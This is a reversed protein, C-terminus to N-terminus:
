PGLVALSPGETIKDRIQKLVGLARKDEVEQRKGGGGGVAMRRLDIQRFQEREGRQLAKSAVNEAEKQQAEFKRMFDANIAAANDAQSQLLADKEAAAKEEAALQNRLPQAMTELMKREANWRAISAQLTSLYGKEELQQIEAIKTKYDMQTLEEKSMISKKIEAAREAFKIKQDEIDKFQQAWKEEAKQRKDLLENTEKLVANQTESMAAAKSVANAFNETGAGAGYILSHLAGFVSFNEKLYELAGALATVMPKIVPILTQGIIVAVDDINAKLRKMTNAFSTSTRAADGQADATGKFILNMTATAKQMDTVEKIGGVIGMNLLEQAIKTQNIVVGYKKMTEASGTLAASIDTIVQQTPLNNFSALDVALKLTQESFKAAAGRAFGLPVFLDQLGAMFKVTERKSIGIASSYSEAFAMSEASLEKFVAQFKSAVEEFDSAASVIKEAMLTIGGGALVGSLLSGLRTASSTFTEVAGSARRMDKQFKETRAAVSVALQGIIAM